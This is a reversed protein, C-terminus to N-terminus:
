YSLLSAAEQDLIWLAKREATGVKQIPIVDPDYPDSFVTDVMSAKSKGFTMIQIDEASNIAEYTLTIRWSEKEPLFNAAVKKNEVSLAHTRPFLSATHGDDGMGLMVLHLKVPELLSNYHHASEEPDESTMMPFIQDRSVLDKFGAEWAMKFNSDPHDLPVCREDSFYLRVRSWDINAKNERLLQYLAKPTSGGSLACSFLGEKEIATKATHIWLDTAFKLATTKDSLISILRREDLAMINESFLNDM